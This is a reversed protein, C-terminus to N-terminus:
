RCRSSIPSAVLSDYILIVDLDSGYDVGGNGLRGLGLISLRPGANMKGFRRALERRAILPTARWPWNPKYDIQNLFSLEGAADSVSAVLLRSWRRRLASIEGAFGQQQDSSRL